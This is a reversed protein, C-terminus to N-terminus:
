CVKLILARGRLRGRVSGPTLFDARSSAQKHIESLVMNQEPSLTDLARSQVTVFPVHSRVHRSAEWSGRARSQRLLNANAPWRKVREPGQM